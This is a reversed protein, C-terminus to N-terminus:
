ASFLPSTKHVRNRRTKTAFRSAASISAASKVWAIAADIRADRAEYDALIEARSVGSGGHQEKMQKPTLGQFAARARFTDDGKMQQLAQIAIEAHTNLVTNKEKEDALQRGLSQRQRELVRGHASLQAIQNPLSMAAIKAIVCDTEPTQSM